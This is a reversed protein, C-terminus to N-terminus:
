ITEERWLLKAGIWDAPQQPEALAMDFGSGSKRAAADGSHIRGWNNPQM